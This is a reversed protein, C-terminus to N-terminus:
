GNKPSSSEGTMAAAAMLKLETDTIPFARLSRRAATQPGRFKEGRQPLERTCLRAILLANAAVGTAWEKRRSQRM